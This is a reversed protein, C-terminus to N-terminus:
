LAVGLMTVGKAQTAVQKLVDRLKSLLTLNSYDFKLDEAASKLESRVSFSLDGLTTELTVGAPFLRGGLGPSIAHRTQFRQAVDFMAVIGRLVVRYPVSATLMDAPIHLSELAAQVTALNGGLQNDINAPVMTVDPEAQLLSIQSADLDACVLWTLELGFDRGEWKPVVDNPIMPVTGGGERFARGDFHNPGRYLTGNNLVEISGVLLFRKPM